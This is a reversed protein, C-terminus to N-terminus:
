NNLDIVESEAKNSGRNSPDAAKFAFFPLLKSDEIQLTIPLQISNICWKILDINPSDRM